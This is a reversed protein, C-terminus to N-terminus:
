AGRAWAVTAAIGEDFEVEPRWGLVREALFSELWINRVDGPRPPGFKAPLASGTATSLARHIENVSIGRGTGLNIALGDGVRLADVNARALDAVYVYDKQQEGDGDITCPQGAIMLGTFIAIVGAEGRPDQRPGYANAYRLITARLGHQRAYLDVYLEGVRKSNGYNSLPKIVHAEDVPLYEPEGYLAGGTSAYILKQVGFEVALACIRATGGGNQTLDHVADNTSVKVSAQAAHHNVIEPRVAAFVEAAQPSLMDAEHLVAGAPVNERHGTALSDLIHVEHGADLYAQAVHSGIFGAGGTVLIRM